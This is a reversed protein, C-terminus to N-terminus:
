REEVPTIKERELEKRPKERRIEWNGRQQM